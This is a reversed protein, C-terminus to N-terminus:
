VKEGKFTTETNLFEEIAKELKEKDIIEGDEKQTDKLHFYEKLLCQYIQIISSVKM